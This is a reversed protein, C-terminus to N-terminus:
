SLSMGGDIGLVQGTMWTVGPDAIAVIWHAVEHSSAMRGLPVQKLIAEKLQPLAEPPAGLKSLGPTETAGPAIANVRVGHPALELAWSRTLSEVAAKTAGYHAAGPSPKHGSASSINVIAGRSVKLSALAARSVFTTGLVNVEFQPRIVDGASLELPVFAGVGANNVVVDLRGADRVVAQVGETAQTENAVDALIWQIKPHKERAVGVADKRRVFGYVRAGAEQFAMAAAEGIGSNAGTVIVVMGGFAKNM